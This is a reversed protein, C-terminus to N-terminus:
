QASAVSKTASFAAAAAGTLGHDLVYDRTM